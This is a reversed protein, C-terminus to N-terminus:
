IVERNHSCCAFQESVIKLLVYLFNHKSDQVNWIYFACLFLHACETPILTEDNIVDM